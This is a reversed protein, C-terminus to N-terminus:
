KIQQPAVPSYDIELEVVSFSTDARLVQYYDSLNVSPQPVLRFTNKAIKSVILTNAHHNLQQKSHTVVVFTGKIRGTEAMSLNVVMADKAFTNQLLKFKEGNINM